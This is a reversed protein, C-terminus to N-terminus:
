WSGSRTSSTRSWRAAAPRSRASTCCSAPTTGSTSPRARRRHGRLVAPPRARRRDLPGAGQGGRDQRRGGRGRAAAPAPAPHRPLDATALGEDALYDHEALAARVDDVTEMPDPRDYRRGPRRGRRRQMEMLFRVPPRFPATTTLAHVLLRREGSLDPRHDVRGAPRRPLHVMAAIDSPLGRRRIVYKKVLQERDRRGGPRDGAHEHHRPGRLERHHQPSRGRAGGLPLLRGRRGQGGLVGGHPDGGGPRHRLHRHRRPGVEADIMAPLAARVAYMVGYLNVKIFGEWDAPRDARPPRPRGDGDDHRARRERRQEGPHRRSGTASSPRWWRTTTPSTSCRPRAHGGDDEIAAVVREARELVLDNVLVEAGAQALTRAIEEGVGQGGGTVLARHGSLDIEYTM